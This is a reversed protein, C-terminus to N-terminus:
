QLFNRWPPFDRFKGSSFEVSAIKRKSFEAVCYLNHCFTIFTQEINNLQCCQPTPSNRIFSIHSINGVKYHRISSTQKWIIWLTLSLYKIFSEDSNIKNFSWNKLMFQWYTNIFSWYKYSWNFHKIKDSYYHWLIPIFYLHNTYYNFPWYLNYFFPIIFGFHWYSLCITNLFFLCSDVNKVILTNKIYIKKSVLKSM